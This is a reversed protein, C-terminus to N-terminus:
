DAPPSPDFKLPGPSLWTYLVALIAAEIAPPLDSIRLGEMLIAGNEVTIAGEDMVWLAFSEMSEFIGEWGEPEGLLGNLKAKNTEILSVLCRSVHEWGGLQKLIQSVRGKTVGVLEAIKALSPPLGHEILDALHKIVGWRTDGAAPAIVGAYETAVNYGLESLWTLDYEAILYANLPADPRRDARLRGLWQKIEGKVAQDYYDGFGDLSGTLTAYEAELAGKSPYPIGFGAIWDMGEYRNSGRSDAFWHGGSHHVKARAEGRGVTVTKYDIVGGGSGHREELGKTLAAAAEQKSQTRQRLMKGMGGVQTIKLNQPAPRWESIVLIESPDVGLRMALVERTLTADLYFNTAMSQAIARHDSSKSTITLGHSTLTPYGEGDCFWALLKILWNSPMAELNAKTQDIAERTMLKRIARAEESTIGDNDGVLVGDPPAIAENPNFLETLEEWGQLDDPSLIENLKAWLEDGALGFRELNEQGEFVGNLYTFLSQLRPLWQPAELAIKSLTAAFDRPSATVPAIASFLTGAEDWYAVRQPNDSPTLWDRPFQDPHMRLRIEKLAERRQFRFGYGQGKSQGCVGFYQCGGCIPNVKGDGDGLTYGKSAVSHFVPALHCNGAEHPAEGAKAQRKHPQGTQTPRNYDYVLGAHRSPVDHYTTEILGTSPNRHNVDFYYSGGDWRMLAAGHSKGTGTPSNDLVHRLGQSKAAQYIRHRNDASFYNVGQPNLDGGEWLQPTSQSRQPAPPPSGFGLFRKPLANKVTTYLARFSDIGGTKQPQPIPNPNLTQAIRKKLAPSYGGWGFGKAVNVLAGMPEGLAPPRKCMSAIAGNPRTPALMEGIAIAESEGVLSVLAATTRLLEQYTGTGPAFDFGRLFEVIENICDQDVDGNSPIFSRQSREVQPPSPLAALDLLLGESVVPAPKQQTYGSPLEPPAEYHPQAAQLPSLDILKGTDRHKILARLNAVAGTPNDGGNAMIYLHWRGGPKVLEGDPGFFYTSTSPIAVWGAGRAEPLVELIREWLILPDDIGGHDYDILVPFAPSYTLDAKCRRKGSPIPNKDTGVAMPEGDHSIGPVLCGEIGSALFEGFAQPNPFSIPTITGRGTWQKRNSKVLKGSKISFKKTLNGEGRFLGLTLPALPKLYDGCDRHLNHHNTSYDLFATEGDRRSNVQKGNNFILSQAVTNGLRDVSQSRDM